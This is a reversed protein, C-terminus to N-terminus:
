PLTRLASSASHSARNSGLDPSDPGGRGRGRRGLFWRAAMVGVLAGFVEAIFDGVAVHRGSFVLKGLLLLMSAAVAMLAAAIFSDCRRRTGLCLAGVALFAIARLFDLLVDIGNLPWSPQWHEYLNFFRKPLVLAGPAVYDVYHNPTAAVARRIEGNWAGGGYVENGLVIRSSPDWTHLSRAPMRAVLRANGNTAIELAEPSIVLRINAWVDPMFVDRVLLAPAGNSDSGERRFWVLLSTGSQALAFNTQGDSRALMMIAATVRSQRSAPKAVLLLDLSSTRVAESFWSPTGSSRALNEDGFHLTGDEARTAGNNVYRPPNWQFPYYSICALAALLLLLM